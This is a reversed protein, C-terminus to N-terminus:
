FSRVISWHSWRVRSTDVVLVKDYQTGCATFAKQLPHVDLLMAKDKEVTSARKVFVMGGGFFIFM